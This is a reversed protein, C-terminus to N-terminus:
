CDTCLDAYSTHPLRLTELSGTRTNLLALHDLGESYICAIRDESLFGYRSLGFIWQPLGFEADMPALPGNQSYLNWWGSRDSIYYLVGAPSWEPQFISEAASGAIKQISSLRRTGNFDAVWLETGDWPMNPHDWTLWALRRGDPSIRPSSYFDHGEALIWPDRSGDAPLAVLENIADRDADHRERVYVLTSGDTTLTMDASRLSGPLPPEPTIASPTTGLEQRYLRQDLFNCFLGSDAQVTYAGGAYEHARTRANFDPPTFDVGDRVVVVRGGELPRGESWYVHGNRVALQSLSIAGTTLLSSTIVSKWSGYPAITRTM